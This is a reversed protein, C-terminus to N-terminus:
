RTEHVTIDVTDGSVDYGRVLKGARLAKAVSARIPSYEVYKGAVRKQMVIGDISCFTDAARKSSTYLGPPHGYSTIVYITM